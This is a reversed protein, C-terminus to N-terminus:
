ASAKPLAGAIQGLPESLADVEVALAKIEPKTLATYAVYPSGTKQDDAATAAHTALLKELTSFRTDLTTVLAPSGTILVPRLETYAYKSGDVNAAFDVLDIHSYREEEGTVKSKAVEDLLSKAGNAMILPTIEVTPISAALKRVNALLQDAIPGDKSIDGKAWLDQEIRHFGVFQAGGTVDDIREDILPDLDGFSEAIPEIREYHARPAPYLAKAKAVDGAKVAAVFPEATSVLAATETTVYARYDAVATTLQAGLPAASPVTGTVKIASRIGTGVMGPKCAVQYDGPVLDVVLNRKTSPGINEVEGMVRDGAAYVYVETIHSGKNTVEFTNRGAAVSDAGVECTKDSAKVSVPKSGGSGSSGSSSKSSCGAGALVALAALSAIAPRLALSTRTMVM